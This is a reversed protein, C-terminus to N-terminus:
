HTVMSKFDDWSSHSSDYFVVDGDMLEYQIGNLGKVSRTYGEMQLWQNMLPGQIYQLHPANVDGNRITEINFNVVIYGDKLFIPSRATLGGHTRGYEAVNEGSKVAYLDSPLSYEGYWKQISSLVRSHDIGTPIGTKPGILTRIQGTLSLSSLSGIPAKQKTTHSIYRQVFLNRGIGAVQDFTYEHDYKYLATDTLEEVSINRLRDNLIVYRSVKDRASGIKVYSNNNSHYYLDVPMRNGDLASIFYFTPRIVIQDQIGFMNGKSKLDFKFHYGTKVVANQYLPHSGPRIPLTYRTPNGRLVGDIGNLGVWYSNGTPIASGQRNRFVMEWNYDAIDTVRFDYVRGIVDVPVKDYAIHHAVNFNANTEQAAGAPANHAITRFEVDYYGEDVWVPAFFEFTEQSKNVDIWTNKAFFYAKTGDYVDFPFRVQKIGTYKLYNRNGYGSYNTHQGSNPMDITFSRDLIIASRGVAPVTKQNHAKDDSVDPYIVVPTHVTVPNIGYIPYNRTESGNVKEYYITGSSDQNAKNIKTMPIMNNPSYLVNDDTIPATSIPLPTSGTNSTSSGNMLTQNYFTFTDNRVSVSVANKAAEQPDQDFPIPIDEPIENPEYGGTRATAYYPANYGSPQIRIGGGDFAYNWLATENIKFVQVDQITWFSYEREVTVQVVAGPLEEEEGDEPPEVAPPPPDNPDPPPPLVRVNVDFTCKGVNEQYAYKHLYVKTWANGYLSETTPIGDLVNFQENGRSDAKIVASVNPNFDEGSLSRGPSPDTCQVGTPPPDEPDPPNSNDGEYYFYVYYTQFTGDYTFGTPDPPSETISGGSPPSVTSKKFGKYQYNTTGPTHTFSYAQNLELIEERDQFGAVGNLSQGTTTFHKIIAKGENPELEITVLSPFFYRRGEVGEALDGGGEETIDQWSERATLFGTASVNFAISSTGLGSEGTKTSSYSRSVTKKADNWEQGYRSTAYVQEAGTLDSSKNVPLDESPDFAKVIVSKIKRGPFEYSYNWSMTKMTDPSGDSTWAGNSRKWIDYYFNAVFYYKNPNTNDKTTPVTSGVAFATSGFMFILAFVVVSCVYISSPRRM